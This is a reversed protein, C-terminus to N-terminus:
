AMGLQWALFTLEDGLEGIQSDVPVGASHGSETDYRLLVPRDSATSAQLLAAMKRAHLPDVRTDFDGSVLLVAPYKTGKEVHQYPSYKYIFPFQKPNQATGYEPVWFKAVKFRDYRLMDLLPFGCVVARFLDPRQTLAAGVLLGGNSRGTIALREKSTYGEKILYEAAAIFDDFVNQKKDLKGADHWKEGFEGGGRLNALAFVGGLDLWALATNNAAPLESIDFGGYGTLLAPHSGDLKIGRHYALFMPVRTGDKSNYWIQKVEISSPDFPQKTQFWVSQSGSSMSYRYITNPQNLSSFNYFAVDSEWRGTPVSAQGLAPLQLQRILKGSDSLIEIRSHVNELWAVALKGGSLSFSDLVYSREPVVEKWNERAPHTLDIALIRGNPANWNTQVFLRDGAVSPQFRANIGTIIPKLSGGATLDAAFIEVTDAASGYDVECVLWRGNDSVNCQGIESPGFQEGFILRDRSTPTGMAHYYFRPGAALATVYYVGSRDPKIAVSMYRASPLTDPLDARTDVNRFRVTSEDQGGQRLGYALLRGDNSIDMVEVSTSHGPSLPNPDLLVTDAGNEGKRLYLIAQQDTARRKRFFYTGNREFPMGMTDIKLLGSVIQRVRERQPVKALVSQTYAMQAKVWARTEPSSQDELWRYPDSIKVGDITDTVTDVRTKPPQSLCVVASLCLCALVRKM